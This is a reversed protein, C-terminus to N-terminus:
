LHYTLTWVLCFRYPRLMLIVEMIKFPFPVLLSIHMSGVSTLTLRPTFAVVRILLISSVHLFLNIVKLSAQAM